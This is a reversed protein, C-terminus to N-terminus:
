LSYETVVLAVGVGYSDSRIIFTTQILGVGWSISLVQRFVAIAVCLLYLALLWYQLLLLSFHFILLFGFVSFQSANDMILM